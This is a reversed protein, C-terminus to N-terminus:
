GRGQGCGSGGQAKRDDPLKTAEFEARAIKAEETAIRQDLRAKEVALDYEKCKLLLEDLREPPVSGPAKDSAKKIVEYEAKAVAASAIIYRVNIDDEAEARAAEYKAKAVEKTASQRSAPSVEDALKATSTKGTQDNAKPIAPSPTVPASDTTKSQRFIRTGRREAPVIEKGNWIFNEPGRSLDTVHTGAPVQMTSPTFIDKAIGKNLSVVRISLSEEYTVAGSAEVRKYHTTAPFWLGTGEDRRPYVDISDVFGAKFESRVVSFGRKPSIWVSAKGDIKGYEFDVRVCEEGSLSDSRYAIGKRNVGGVFSDLQYYAMANAIGEPIM